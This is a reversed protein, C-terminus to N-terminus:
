QGAWAAPVDVTHDATIAGTTSPAVYTSADCYNAALGITASFERLLDPLQGVSTSDAVHVPSAGTGSACVCLRYTSNETLDFPSLGTASVMENGGTTGCAGTATALQAGSDGDEYLAV